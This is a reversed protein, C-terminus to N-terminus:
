RMKTIMDYTTRVNLSLLRVKKRTEEEKLKSLRKPRQTQTLSEAAKELSDKGNLTRM